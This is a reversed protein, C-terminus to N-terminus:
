HNEIPHTMPFSNVQMSGYIIQVMYAYICRLFLFCAKPQANVITDLYWVELTGM